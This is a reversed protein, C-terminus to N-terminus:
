RVPQGLVGIEAASAWPGGQVESLIRVRVFRARVPAELDAAQAERVAAFRARLKPAADLAERTPAAQFETEAFAGNWGGDQRALYRFGRVTHESGLDLVIEHPHEAVGGTFQTHWITRPDGDTAHRAYKQNAANQSSVDVVEIKAPDILDPEVIRQVRGRQQSQPRDPSTGWKAERDKEHRVRGPDLYIGANVPEHEGKAIAAMMALREPHSTAVDRSETPDAELDFLEWRGSGEAIVQDWDGGRGTRNLIGKFRGMRVALQNGFEWYVFDPDEQEATGLLTPLFSRGDADDPTEAGCLETLTPLVDPHSFVLRSSRGPEIRGPWRVVYPIRLGGEYLDGKGGRFAAGTQPDVNPGFYGRPHEKSRFRDQGGNDGTFFVITDDDLGLEALLDLVEGVNRDVLSVMAAYNKAEDPADAMWEAGEYLQWAPDDAPIDYMGHPPTIPLYCFFPQDAHARIFELAERMIEYQSYTEGRRGGVNGALPVEESNRILYPPFFSHAHVQDYYGFFVDFGHDEPVGTSDRGGCGWKGFGGTAYGKEGLLSAITAEDARLPTGGDNARVSAHGAHKGTMLNCRLPACVPAGAYARDMRIGEAAMRDIRPTRLKPHGAYGVEYYALEDAMIYVVNPPRQADAPTAIAGLALLAGLSRCLHM